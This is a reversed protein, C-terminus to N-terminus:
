KRRGKARGTKRARIMGVKRGPPANRPAITPKGAHRGRGSGFPHDVANMAVASTKPYLKGKAKMAHWKKGAKLFPKEKKGGGAITGIVAKCEPNFSKKKKSPMEVVIKGGVKTVVKAAVGAVRVFRGGDGPIGEINYILTGEPISKLPLASARKVNVGSGYEVEDGVKVGLPASLLATTGDEYDIQMLPASHGPCNILDVVKGKIDKDSDKKHSIMGKFRHGLSKYTHTGRGRRQQIIRKGM